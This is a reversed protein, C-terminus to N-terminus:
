SIRLETTLEIDLLDPYKTYDASLFFIMKIKNSKINNLTFVFSNKTIMEDLSKQTINNKISGRSFKFDEYKKTKNNETYIYISLIKNYFPYTHLRKMKITHTKPTTTLQIDFYDSVNFSIKNAKPIAKPITTKKYPIWRKTKNKDEAVIWMQNDKGKKITNLKEAHACFGLGKPSPETGIYKKSPDNKCSPM